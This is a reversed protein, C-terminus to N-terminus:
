RGNGLDQLPKVCGRANTSGGEPNMRRQIVNSCLCIARVLRERGAVGVGNADTHRSPLPMGARAALLKWVDGWRSLGPHHRQAYEYSRAPPAVVVSRASCTLENGSGRRSFLDDPKSPSVLRQVFPGGAPEDPRLWPRYAVVVCSWFYGEGLANSGGGAAAVGKSFHPLPTAINALLGGSRGPSGAPPSEVTRVLASKLAEKQHGLRVTELAPIGVSGVLCEHWVGM